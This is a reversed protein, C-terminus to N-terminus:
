NLFLMSRSKKAVYKRKTIKNMKVRVTYTVRVSGKGFRKRGLEALEGRRPRFGQCESITREYAFLFIFELEWPTLLPLLLLDACDVDIIPSGEPLGEGLVPPGEGSVPPGKGKMLPDEERAGSGRSDSSSSSFM